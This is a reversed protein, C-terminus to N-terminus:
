ISSFESFNILTFESADRKFLETDCRICRIYHVFTVDNKNFNIILNQWEFISTKTLDFSAARQFPHFRSSQRISRWRTSWTVHLWLERFHFDFHNVIAFLDQSYIVILRARVCWQSEPYVRSVCVYARASSVRAFQTFWVNTIQENKLMGMATQQSSKAAKKARERRM